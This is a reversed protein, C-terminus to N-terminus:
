KCVALFRTEKPWKCLRGEIKLNTEEICLEKGNGYDCLCPVYYRGDLKTETGLAVLVFEKYLRPIKISLFVLMWINAPKYGLKNMELVVESSSIEKDFHCIFMRVSGKKGNLIQPFHKSVFNNNWCEFKGRKVLEVVGLTEDVDVTLIHTIYLLTNSILENRLFKKFQTLFEGMKDANLKKLFDLIIGLVGDEVNMLEKLIARLM